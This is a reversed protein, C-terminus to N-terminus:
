MPPPTMIQAILVRVIRESVPHIGAILLVVEFLYVIKLKKFKKRKKENNMCLHTYNMNKNM